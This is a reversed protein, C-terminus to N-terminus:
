RGSGAVFTGLRYRLRSFFGLRHIPHERRDVFTSGDSVCGDIACVGSAPGAYPVFTHPRAGDVDYIIGDHDPTM